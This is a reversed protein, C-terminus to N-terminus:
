AVERLTLARWNMGAECGGLTAILTLDNCDGLHGIRFMKGKAKGLGTGLSLDFREYIIKRVDDADIGEPMVVGTLVPSYVSPDLCQIELGWAEVAARVGAAWRQHRALVHDIGEDLLMDLAENLGYLM